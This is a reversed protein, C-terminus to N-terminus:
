GSWSFPRPGRQKPKADAHAPGGFATLNEVKKVDSRIAFGSVVEVVGLVVLWIGAVLALTVILDFPYALTVVGAIVSVIGFFNAWGRGPFQKDAIATALASVSRFIFGVGIGIVLLL